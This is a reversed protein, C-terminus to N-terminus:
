YQGDYNHYQPNTKGATDRDRAMLVLMPAVRCNDGTPPIHENRRSARTSAVWCPMRLRRGSVGVALNARRLLIRVHQLQQLVSKRLFYIALRWKALSHHYHTAVDPLRLGERLLASPDFAQRLCLRLVQDCQGPLQPGMRSREPPRSGSQMDEARNIM